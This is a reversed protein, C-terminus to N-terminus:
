TFKQNQKNCGAVKIKAEWIGRGLIFDFRMKTAERVMNGVECYQRQERDGALRAPFEEGRGKDDNNLGLEGGDVECGLAGCYLLFVMSVLISSTPLAGSGDLNDGADSGAEIGVRSPHISLKIVQL